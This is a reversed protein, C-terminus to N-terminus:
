VKAWLSGGVGSRVAQGMLQATKLATTVESRSMNLRKALQAVKVPRKSLAEMVLRHTKEEEIELYEAEETVPSRSPEQVLALGTLKQLKDEVDALETQLQGRRVHLARVIEDKQAFWKDFDALLQKQQAASQRAEEAYDRATDGNPRDNQTEYTDSMKM